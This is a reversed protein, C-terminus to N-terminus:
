RRPRRFCLIATRHGALGASQSTFDCGIALEAAATFSGRTVAGDASARGAPGIDVLRDVRHEGDCGALDVFRPERVPEALLERKWASPAVLVGADNGISKGISRCSACRFSEGGSPHLSIKRATRNPLCCSPRRSTSREHARSRATGHASSRRRERSRAARPRHVRTSCAVTGTDSSRPESGGVFAAAHVTNHHAAPVATVTAGTRADIKVTLRDCANQGDKM